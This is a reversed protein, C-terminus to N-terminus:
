SLIKRHGVAVTFTPGEPTSSGSRPRAALVFALFAGVVTAALACGAVAVLPSPAVVAPLTAVSGGSTRGAAVVTRLATVIPARLPAVISTGLAAIVPS